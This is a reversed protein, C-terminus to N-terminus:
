LSLSLSNHESRRAMSHSWREDKRGALKAATEQKGLITDLATIHDVPPAALPVRFKGEVLTVLTHSNREGVGETDILQSIGDPSIGHCSRSPKSLPCTTWCILIDNKHPEQRIGRPGQGLGQPSDSAEAETNDRYVKILLRVSENEPISSVCVGEQANLTDFVCVAPVLSM